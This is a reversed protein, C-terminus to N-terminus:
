SRGRGCIAQLAAIFTPLNAKAVVVVDDRDNGDDPQTILIRAGEDTIRTEVQEALCIIKATAEVM